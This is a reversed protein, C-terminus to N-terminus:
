TEFPDRPDQPNFIPLWIHQQQQYKTWWFITCIINVLIILGLVCSTIIIGTQDWLDFYIFSWVFGGCVIAFFLTVGLHVFARNRPIM